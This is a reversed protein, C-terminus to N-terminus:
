GRRGNEHGTDVMQIFAEPHERFYLIMENTLSLDNPEVSIDARHVWVGESLEKTDLVIKQGEGDLEAFYGMLLGGSFGWPQSKYYKLNRINLGVEEKVERIVTDEVREGIEIFGAVLAFNAATRGSYRTLLLEDNRYVGVIVAPSIRPYVTNGCSKCLQMREIEDHVLVEGCRGCFRNDNYWHNLHQATVGAFALHKPRMARFLSADQYTFSGTSVIDQPKALFFNQGDVEFLYTLKQWDIEIDTCSPFRIETGVCCLVRGEDFCIILSEDDASKKAYTIDISHPYIDQIM